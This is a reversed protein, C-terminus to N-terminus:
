HIYNEVRWKAQKLAQIIDQLETDTKIVVHSGARLHAYVGDEDDNVRYYSQRPQENYYYSYFHLEKLRSYYSITLGGKMTYHVEFAHPGNSRRKIDNLMIVLSDVQDVDLYGITNAFSFKASSPKEQRRLYGEQAFQITTARNNENSNDILVQGSIEIEKGVYDSVFIATYNLNNQLFTQAQTKSRITEILPNQATAQGCWALTLCLITLLQKM